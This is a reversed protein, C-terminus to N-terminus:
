DLEDLGQGIIADPQREEPDLTGDDDLDVHLTSRGALRARVVEYLVPHRNVNIVIVREIGDLAEVDAGDLESPALWRRPRMAWLLGHEVPWPSGDVSQLHLTGPMNAFLIFLTGDSRLGSFWISRGSLSAPTTAPALPADLGCFGGEPVEVAPLEPVVRNQALDVVFPGDVVVDSQESDCALYRLEGFVLIAHRLSSAALRETDAAEPEAHPDSTLSLRVTGEAGPNGVGTSTCGLAFLALLISPRPMM